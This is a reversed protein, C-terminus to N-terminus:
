RAIKIFKKSFGQNGVEVIEDYGLNLPLSLTSESIVIQQKLTDRELRLATLQKEYMKVITRWNFEDQSIYSSDPSKPYSPSPEASGQAM